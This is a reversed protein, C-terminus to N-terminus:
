HLPADPTGRPRGAGRQQMARVGDSFSTGRRAGSQELRRLRAEIAEVDVISIREATDGGNGGQARERSALEQEREALRDSRAALEAQTKVFQLEAAELEALRAAIRAEREAPDQERIEALRREAEAEREALARERQELEQPTVSPTAAALAREREAVAAERRNLEAVRAQLAEREQALAPDSRGPQPFRFGASPAKGARALAEELERERMRVFEVREALIRKMQELEAAAEARQRRLAEREDDVSTEDGRRFRTVRGHYAPSAVIAAGAV